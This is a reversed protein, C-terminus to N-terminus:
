PTQNRWVLISLYLLNALLHLNPLFLSNEALVEIGSTLEAILALVFSVDHSLSPFVAFVFNTFVRFM